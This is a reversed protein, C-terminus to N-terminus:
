NNIFIEQVAFQSSDNGQVEDPLVADLCHECKKTEVAELVLTKDGSASGEDLDSVM